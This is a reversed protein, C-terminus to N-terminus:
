TWESQLFSRTRRGYQCFPCLDSRFSNLLANHALATNTSPSSEKSRSDSLTTTTLKSETVVRLVIPFGNRRNKILFFQCHGKKWRRDKLKEKKQCATTMFRCAYDEFSHVKIARITGLLQDKALDVIIPGLGYKKQPSYFFTEEFFM